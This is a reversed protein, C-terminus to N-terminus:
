KGICFTSFIRDLIDESLTRGEVEGLQHLADGLDVAVIEPPSGELIHDRAKAILSAAQSLAHYHRINTIHVAGPDHVESAPALRSIEDKLASLGTEFKASLPLPRSLPRRKLLENTDFRTPLDEKNIVAIVQEKDATNEMVLLDDDDLQRSGDFVAIVVDADALKQYVMAIGQLEIEDSTKRIGATDTLSVPLGGIQISEEIFDRTTGPIPTVIARNTELLANLLSSKGVNPKGIILVRLGDQYIRGNRYTGLLASLEALCADLPASAQPTEMEPIDEETFDISAELVALVDMLRDQIASVANALSGKLRNVAESLGRETRARVLDLIAEARSLDIRNNLFARKTFEGPEALRAGLDLVTQLITKIVLPGGHCNIEVTDEGTYSHPKNMFCLLVEDILAGNQPSVIDGHYLRHSEPHPTHRTPRFIRRAIKFAGTGSIRIIGVSGYGFPTALAAITDGSSAM